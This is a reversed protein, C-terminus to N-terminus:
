EALWAGPIARPEEDALGCVPGEGGEIIERRKGADLENTKAAARSCASWSSEERV